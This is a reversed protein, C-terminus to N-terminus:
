VDYTALSLSQDNSYFCIHGYTQIVLYKYEHVVLYPSKYQFVTHLLFCIHGYTQIVLYEYEHVVLYPSKYQFVTHLLRFLSFAFCGFSLSILIRKPVHVVTIIICCCWSKNKSIINHDARPVLKIM